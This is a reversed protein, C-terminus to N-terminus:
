QSGCTCSCKKKNKTEKEKISKNERILRYIPRAKLQIPDTFRQQDTPLSVIFQRGSIRETIVEYKHDEPFTEFRREGRADVLNRGLRRDQVARKFGNTGSM